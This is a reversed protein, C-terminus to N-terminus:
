GALKNGIFAVFGSAVAVVGLGMLANYMRRRASAAKEVTGGATIYGVGAIIISIIAVLGALRLLMDIIALGVPLLDGPFTFSVVTCSSDLQLYEWWTPLFFFKHNCTAPTAALFFLSAKYFILTFM